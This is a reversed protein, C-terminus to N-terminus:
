KAFSELEEDSFFEPYDPDINYLQRRFQTILETSEEKYLFRLLDEFLCYYNPTYDYIDDDGGANTFKDTVDDAFDNVWQELDEKPIVIHCIDGYLDSTNTELNEIDVGNSFFKLDERKRLEVLADRTMKIAIDEGYISELDFTKLLGHSHPIEYEGMIDFAFLEWHERKKNEETTDFQSIREETLTFRMRQPTATKM